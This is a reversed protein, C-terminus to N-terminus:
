RIIIYLLLFVKSVEKNKNPINQNSRQSPKMESINPSSGQNQASLNGTGVRPQTSRLKVGFLDM